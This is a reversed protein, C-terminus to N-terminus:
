ASRRGADSAFSSVPADPEARAKVIGRASGKLARYVSLNFVILGTAAYLYQAWVAETDTGAGAAHALALVFAGFTAYHILRWARYSVRPRLYFAGIVIVTVYFGFTGLAMYLPEYPSAFPVLLELVSFGIFKDPLVILIHFVTVGLTVLALFRHLDYVRFRQLWRPLLDGTMVLGFTVSVFLLIYAIFGASRTLYWYTHDIETM